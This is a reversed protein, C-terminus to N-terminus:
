EMKTPSSTPPASLGSAPTSPDNNKVHDTKFPSKEKGGSELVEGDGGCLRSLYYNTPTSSIAYLISCQPGFLVTEVPPIRWSTEVLTQSADVGLSSPICARSKQKSASQCTLCLSGLRAAITCGGACSRQMKRCSAREDLVGRVSAKSSSNM